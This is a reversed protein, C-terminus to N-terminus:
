LVLACYFWDATFWARRAELLKAFQKDDCGTVNQDENHCDDHDIHYDADHEIRATITFGEAETTITDGTCVYKNFKQTFM